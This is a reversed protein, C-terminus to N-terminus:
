TKLKVWPQSCLYDVNYLMIEAYSQPYLEPALGYKGKHTRIIRLIIGMTEESMMLMNQPLNDDEKRRKLMEGLHFPHMLDENYAMGGQQLSYYFEDHLIAAALVSDREMGSINNADLLSGVMRVVRKTHLILGYDDLEDKNPGYTAPVRPATWFYKPAYTLSTRVFGKILMDEILEVEAKLPAILEDVIKDEEKSAKRADGVQKLKDEMDDSM